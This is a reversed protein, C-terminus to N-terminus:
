KMLTMKRTITMDGATLRFMYVGSSLQEASFTSTHWGSSQHGDVLTEVLQGMMNYVALTVEASEPLSYRISTTPNFPNPFNQSLSVVEPLDNFPISTIIITTFRLPASWGSAGTANRAQVRWFYTKGEQLDIVKYRTEELGTIDVVLNDFNVTESLQLEYTNARESDGWVLIPETSVNEENNAPAWVPIEPVRLETTFSWTNSWASHKADRYARVRWYYKTTDSLDIATYTLGELDNAFKATKFSEEVSYQLEYFEAAEFQEWKFEVPFKVEVQSNTPSSLAVTGSIPAPETTFSFAVSWDSMGDDNIANVRWYYTKGYDLNDVMQFVGWNTEEDSASKGLSKSATNILNEFSPADSIQLTYNFAGTVPQWSFMVPLVINSADHVPALLAPTDLAYETFFSRTDSWDSKGGVNIAKVRWYYSTNFQLKDPEFSTGTIGASDAITSNFNSTLSLQVQYKEARQTNGWTLKPLVTLNTIADNPSLLIPKDPAQIITTFSWPESWEGAGNENVGRVRWYYKSSYDLSEPFSISTDPVSIQEFNILRFDSFNSIQIDYTDAYAGENWFFNPIVNVDSINNNPQLLTLKPPLDVVILSINQVFHGVIVSFTYEGTSVDVTSITALVTKAEQSIIVTNQTSNAISVELSDTQGGINKILIEVSINQGLSVISPYNVSQIVTYPISWLLRPYKNPIAAWTNQFDLEAMDTKANFGSIQMSNLGIVGGQSGRGVGHLQNSSEIDYYSSQINAGNLGIFGGTDQNGDATGTSYSYSVMGNGHNLGVLGGVENAGIVNGQAYSNSIIATNEGVLGGVKVEGHVNGTSFSNSLTGITVGDLLQGILGGVNQKGSVKGLAYSHSIRSGFRSHGILGGVMSGGTVTANSNSNSISSPNDRLEGALGGVSSEGEVIGKSNSTSVSAGFYIGGVLGGVSYIGQVNSNSSSEIILSNRDHHTGVLGGVSNNGKVSVEAHSNIINGGNKNWGILGGTFYSDNGITIIQGTVSSNKILGGNNDAALAGVISGGTIRVDILRVNSLTAGKLFGFVGINNENQRSISLKSISYDNGNYSGSFMVVSDGIPEFGKGENWNVTSEADINVIQIFHKDIHNRIEQLQEITAVKYPDESTGSGGAFQANANTILIYNLAIFIAITKFNLNDGKSNSGRMSLLNKICNLIVITLLARKM